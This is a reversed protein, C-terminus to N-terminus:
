HGRVDSCFSGTVHGSMDKNWSRKPSKKKKIQAVPKVFVEGVNYIKQAAKSLYINFIKLPKVVCKVGSRAETQPFIQFVISLRGGVKHM